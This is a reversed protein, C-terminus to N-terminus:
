DRYFGAVQQKRLDNESMKLVHTIRPSSFLDTATYPVVVDQAPIFKSVQRGKTVDFYTKKFTSGSLPLYFLMQDMEPDYEEMVETIQYNMYEKIREAQAEVQPTVQGAIHTKVPGGAPLLEKYAQAQFQTVSESIVPHTVSSAGEFPTSREEQKVGLLDLGKVYTEEWESRSEMDDEVSALLDSAIEALTSDDLFDALNADFPILQEVDMNSAMEAIAQILASGDEQPVVEAGGLFEMPGEVPIEMGQEEPVLASDVMAGMPRPPLM